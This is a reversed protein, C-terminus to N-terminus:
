CSGKTGLARTIPSTSAYNKRSKASVYRNPEDGFEGLVRAGLITGLGPLSRVVVADPHQEFGAELEEALRATDAVMTAIVAVSASVSAGM